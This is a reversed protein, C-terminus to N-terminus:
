KVTMTICKESLIGWEYIVFVKYFNHLQAQEIVKGLAHAYGVLELVLDVPNQKCM